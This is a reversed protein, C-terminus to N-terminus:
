IQLSLGSSVLTHDTPAVPAGAAAMQECVRQWTEREIQLVSMAENLKAEDRRLHATVLSRFIFAYIASVKSALAKDGDPRIGAMIETVIEQVRLIAEGADADEGAAWHDKAKQAFRLAADLLMLQLKQPPATMVQNVLYEDRANYNM